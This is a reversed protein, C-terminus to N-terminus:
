NLVGMKEGSRTAVLCHRRSSTFLPIIMDRISSKWFVNGLYTKKNKM